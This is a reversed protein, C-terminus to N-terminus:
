ALILDQRDAYRSDKQWESRDLFYVHHGMFLHGHYLDRLRKKFGTEDHWIHRTLQFLYDTSLPGHRNLIEFVFYDRDTLSLRKGTPQRGSFRLRRPYSKGDLSYTDRLKMGPSTARRTEQDVSPTPFDSADLVSHDSHYM